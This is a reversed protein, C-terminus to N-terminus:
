AYRAVIELSDVDPDLSRTIGDILALARGVLVFDSPLGGLDGALHLVDPSSKGQHDGLAVGALQLLALPDTGPGVRVGADALAETVADFDFRLLAQVMRRLADVLSPSLTTTLGHDLLVLRPGPQVLLNGPHPDAHLVGLRLIQEAYVDNLLRAVAHLDIGAARLGDRDWIRIGDVYDMVLLRDGSLEDLPTPIVVDARGSLAGALSLMAKAEHRFDLELPLTANLYELVPRLQVRPAISAVSSVMWELVALDARVLDAVDPYQVKLAVPLGNRLHARHVQALSAAAVPEPDVSEFVEDLARGDLATVIAPRMVSWSHPPVRDQLLAFEAIYPEPALDPRASVFQAAKILAGGLSGAVARLQTAGYQHRAQWDEPTVLSPSLRRRAELQVYGQYVAAAVTGLAGARTSWASAALGLPSQEALVRTWREQVVAGATLWANTADRTADALGVTLRAGEVDPTM